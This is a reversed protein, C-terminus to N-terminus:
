TADCKRTFGLVSLSFCFGIGVVCWQTSVRVFKWKSNNTKIQEGIGVVTAVSSRQYALVSYRSIRSVSASFCFICNEPCSSRAEWNLTALRDFSLSLIVFSRSAVQPVQHRHIFLQAVFAVGCPLIFDNIPISSFWLASQTLYNRSM